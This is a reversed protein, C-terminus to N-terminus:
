LVIIDTVRYVMVVPNRSNIGEQQETLEIIFRLRNPSLQGCIMVEAEYKENVYYMKIRKLLKTYCSAPIDAYVFRYLVNIDNYMLGALVIDIVQTPSIGKVAHIESLFRTFGKIEFFLNNTDSTRIQVLNPCYQALRRMFFYLGASQVGITNSRLHTFDAVQLNQLRGSKNFIHNAVEGLPREILCFIAEETPKLTTFILNMENEMAKCVGRWGYVNAFQMILRIEKGQLQLKVASTALVIKKVPENLQTADEDDSSDCITFIPQKNMINMTPKTIVILVWVIIDTLLIITDIVRIEINLGNRLILIRILM